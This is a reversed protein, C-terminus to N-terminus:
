RYGAAQLEYLEAYLGGRALLRGHDGQEAIRGDRLVVITDAARVTSFRHSIFVTITGSAAASERATRVYRQVLDHEALADLAATPEDLIRLLPRARMMARALALRQWQGGSLEAGDAFSRGLPTELGDALQAVVPRAEARRVAADVASLDDIAGVDGIGVSERARFEFHCFDQFCASSRARLSEIEYRDLPLGDLSITGRTPEYFGCLLKALTSKGAGNAGVVALTTGPPISFSVDHLADRPAGPYRFTVGRLEIGRRAEVPIEAPQSSRRRRPTVARRIWDIRESASATRQLNGAIQVARNVQAFVQGVLGMTLAVDGASATGSRAHRVVVALAAFYGLAFVVGGVARVSAAAVEARVAARYVARRLVDHRRELEHKLGFVRVEGASAPAVALEVLHAAARSAAATALRSREVRREGLRGAVLPPVAFLPLALLLPDLRALLVATIAVGVALAAAQLLAEIGWWVAESDERLLALRDAVDPREHMEITPDGHIDRALEDELQLTYLDALEFYAVHAFHQLTKVLVVLLALVLGAAVAASRDHHLVAEALQKLAVAALPGSASGIVMLGLATTARAADARWARALTSLAARLVQM